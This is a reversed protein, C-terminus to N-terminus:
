PSFVSNVDKMFADSKFDSMGGGSIDSRDTPSYNFPDRLAEDQRTRMSSPKEDTAASCGGVGGAAALMLVLTWTRM